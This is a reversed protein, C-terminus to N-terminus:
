INQYGEVSCVIFVFQIFSQVISGFIYEIKVKPFPEPIKEGVNRFSKKLFTNGTEYKILQSLKM